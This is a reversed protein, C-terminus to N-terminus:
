DFRWDIGTGISSTIRERQLDYRLGALLTLDFDPTLHFALTPPPTMGDTRFAGLWIARAESRWDRGPYETSGLHVAAGLWDTVDLL